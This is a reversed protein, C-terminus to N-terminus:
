IHVLDDILTVAPLSTTRFWKGTRRYRKARNRLHDSVNILIMLTDKRTRLYADTVTLLDGQRRTIQFDLDNETEILSLLQSLPTATKSNPPSVCLLDLMAKKKHCLAIAHNVSASSFEGYSALVVRPPIAEPTVPCSRQQALIEVKQEETLMEGANAFALANGILKLTNKIGNLM